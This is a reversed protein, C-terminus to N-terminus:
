RAALVRVRSFRMRIEYPREDSSRLSELRRIDELAWRVLEWCSADDPNTNLKQVALDIVLGRIHLERDIHV